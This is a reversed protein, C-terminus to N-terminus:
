RVSNAPAPEDPKLVPADVKACWSAEDNNAEDPKGTGVAQLVRTAKKSGATAKKKAMETEKGIIIECSPAQGIGVWTM